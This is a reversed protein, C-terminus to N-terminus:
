DSKDSYLGSFDLPFYYKGLYLGCKDMNYCSINVYKYIYYKYMKLHLWQGLADICKILTSGMM